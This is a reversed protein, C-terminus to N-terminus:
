HVKQIKNIGRLEATLEDIMALSLANRRKADNLVIRVVSNGQFIYSIFYFVHLPLHTLPLFCRVQYIEKLLLSAPASSFGRLSRFWM